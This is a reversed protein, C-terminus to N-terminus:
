RSADTAKRTPGTTRWEGLSTARRRVKRTAERSLHWARAGPSATSLASGIAFMVMGVLLATLYGRSLPGPVPTLLLRTLGTATFFALVGSGAMITRALPSSALVGTAVVLHWVLLGSWVTLTRVMHVPNRVLVVATAMGVVALLTLGVGIRVEWAGRRPREAHRAPREAASM